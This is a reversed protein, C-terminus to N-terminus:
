VCVICVRECVRAPAAACARWRKSRLAAARAMRDLPAARGVNHRLGRAPTTKGPAMLTYIVKLKHTHISYIYIYIYVCVHIYIYIYICVYIYIYICVYRCLRRPRNGADPLETQFLVVTAGPSGVRVLLHMKLRFCDHLNSSKSVRVRSKTSIMNFPGAAM